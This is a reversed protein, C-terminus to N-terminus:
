FLPIVRYKGFGVPGPIVHLLISAWTLNVIIYNLPGSRHMGKWLLRALIYRDRSSGAHSVTLGLEYALCM